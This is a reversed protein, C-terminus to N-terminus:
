MAFVHIWKRFIQEIKIVSESDWSNSISFTKEVQILLENYSFIRGERRLKHCKHEVIEALMIEEILVCPRLKFGVYTATSALETLSRDKTAEISTDTITSLIVDLKKNFLHYALFQSEGIHLCHLYDFCKVLRFMGVTKLELMLKPLFIKLRVIVVQNIIM